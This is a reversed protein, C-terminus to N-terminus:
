RSRPHFSSPTGRGSFSASNPSWESQGGTRRSLTEIYKQVLQLM